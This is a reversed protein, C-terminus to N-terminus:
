DKPGSIIRMELGGELSVNQSPLYQERVLILTYVFLSVFGLWVLVFGNLLFFYIYICLEYIMNMTKSVLSFIDKNEKM